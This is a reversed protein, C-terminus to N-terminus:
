QSHINEPSFHTHDLDDPDPNYIKLNPCIQLYNGQKELEKRITNKINSTLSYKRVSLSNDEGPIEDEPFDSEELSSEQEVIKQRNSHEIKIDPYLITTKGSKAISVHPSDSPSEISLTLFDDRDGSVCGLYQFM